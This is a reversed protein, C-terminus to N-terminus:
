CAPAAIPQANTEGTEEVEVYYSKGNVNVNFKRM